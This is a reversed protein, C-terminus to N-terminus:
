YLVLVFVYIGYRPLTRPDTVTKPREFKKRASSGPTSQPTLPTSQQKQPTSQPTQPTSQQKQPTWQQKLPTSQQKQSPTLLTKQSESAHLKDKLRHIKTQLYVCNQCPQQSPHANSSVSSTSTSPSASGPSKEVGSGEEEEGDEDERSSTLKDLDLTSVMAPQPNSKRLNRLARLKANQKAMKLISKHKTKHIDDHVSEIHKDLRAFNKNKCVPCRLKGRHNQIPREVVLPKSLCKGGEGLKWEGIQITVKRVLGDDDKSVDVVRALKWENHPADEQVIIIDNVACETEAQYYDWSFVREEMQVLVARVSIAGAEM